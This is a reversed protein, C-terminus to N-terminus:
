GRSALTSRKGIGPLEAFRAALFDLFVRVKATLHRSTPYVAHVPRDAVSWADLVRCLRGAVLDEWCAFLPLRAIGLGALAAERVVTLSNALLTGHVRVTVPGEPGELAWDPGHPPSTYVICPSEVLERPHAPAPRAALYGPSACLVGGGAGLKRVVLSAERVPGIRIALDIAEGVLDVARDTLVLEVALQPHLLLFDRVHLALITVGLDVGASVRLKGRPATGLGAIEAEAEEVQAVLGACREHFISGAETLVVHRPTRQVLRVGLREELSSLRRSITSKPLGLSRAARTLSKQEVIRIFVAIENLDM